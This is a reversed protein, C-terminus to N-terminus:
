PTRLRYYRRPFNTAAADSFEFQGPATEPVSALVTWNSLPLNLNTAALVTFSMGAANTFAIHMAGNTGPALAARTPPLARLNYALTQDNFTFRHIGTLINSVQINGGLSQSSGSLPVTFQTQSSDGWNNTWSGNAAFKFQANTANDFVADYQWTNNTVLIMNTLAPSWGNFNGAVAMTAYPSALLPTVSYALTQDNFTFRYRGNFTGNVAINTASNPKGTGALPVAFQTQSGVNEGWNTSWNGNAVFKFQFNTAAALTTDFQWVHDAVATMNSAAANWQPNLFTGAVTMASYTNSSVVVNNTDWDVLVTQAAGTDALKIALKGDGTLLWGNTAALDAVQALPAGNLKVAAVSDPNYVYIFFNTHGPNYSGQRTAINFDWNTPTRTSTFTTAAYVGNTCGWGEGEDEYLTFASDGDPWCNLDLYGPTFEMTHQMTPGMPIIAGSRVFLPLQGLPASVSVTNGGTYRTNSWWHYWGVGPAYPLYVSRTTAGQNYVPAALLYDGVMFEYDNLAATNTDAFYKFVPPTNMPEGTQTCNHALTYLYPMLQYRFQISNRMAGQYPESYRWPERGQDAGHYDDGKRSHSRFFPLLAGWEHCRTLLEPDVTGTFGGIDHGFWAVGSIMASTGFRICTRAYTWNAATDGSWSVAYRQIGCNGSRSLVFPRKDPNKALLAEYSTSACRLGFYNHENCWQRRSDTTSTGYRGDLWLLGNAPISDGEPENIDNWIGAFPFSTMWNTIKDQWWTRAPTSSFDPWSVPGLYINGVVTGGGNDKIFHSHANADAYFPDLTELVPEILPIIKVGKAACYSVMNGPNPFLSANATFQHLNNADTPSGAANVKMYDIDLYVADLPINNAVAADALYQVWSQNDYSFRSLHYGFAWKPLTAPRGTLESFRDAVAAMTHAAGGGFFFYDMQGDGAEFSYAAGGFQTGFKFLPRCPNNFLIGYAFANTSGSAPQVGYFFPTNLYEPKNFENWNYTGTNWCEFESGRRNLPGGYEGLGFFSQGAPLTKICKLKFGGSSWGSQGSYGYASDFESHDDRLLYFGSRDKFDVKFPSKTVVVDLQPTQILYTAGQDAFTVSNSITAWEGPQKAIMPEEKSWLGGFHYRVRVTDVALPTVAAVGGNDIAFTATVNGNTADVSLTVNTATGVTQIAASAAAAGLLLASVLLLGLAAGPKPPIPLLSM